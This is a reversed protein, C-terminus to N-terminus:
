HPAKYNPYIAIQDVNIYSNLRKLSIRAKGDYLMLKDGKQLNWILTKGDIQPKPTSTIVGNEAEQTLTFEIRVPQHAELVRVWERNYKHGMYYWYPTMNIKRAAAKVDKENGDIKGLLIPTNDSILPIDASITLDSGESTMHMNKIDKYFRRESKKGLPYLTYEIEATEANTKQISKLDTLM